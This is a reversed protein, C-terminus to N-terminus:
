PCSITATRVGVGTNTRSAGYPGFTKSTGSPTTFIDGLYYYAYGLSPLDADVWNITSPTPPNCTHQYADIDCSGIGTLGTTSTFATLNKFPDTITCNAGVCTGILGGDKLTCVGLTGCDAAVNCGIKGAYTGATCLSGTILADTRVFSHGYVPRPLALGPPTGPGTLLFNPMTISMNKSTATLSFTLTPEVPAPPPGVYVRCGNIAAGTPPGTPLTTCNFDSSCRAQVKYLELETTNGVKLSGASSWDQLVTTGDIGGYFKFQAAGDVCGGTNVTQSADLLLTEGSVVVGDGDADTITFVIDFGGNTAPTCMVTTPCWGALTIVDPEVLPTVPSVIAGTLQISDIWWGDDHTGVDWVAATGPPELYSDWGLGFLWVNAIWRIKVRQGFLMSLNFKSQVWVGDGVSGLYGPGQAQYFQFVNTGLVSGSHSWIGDPFCMTEAYVTPNSATAGDTPTYECYGFWSFVQTVHDYVNQFPALKTWNGFDDVTPSADKDVSIQVDGRDAAQGVGFNVPNDDVGHFIHYFSLTLDDGQPTITLNIPNTVFAEIQRHPTTDGSRNTANTHRGWHASKYGHYAKPAPITGGGQDFHWDSDYDIDIECGTGPDWYQEFGWCVKGVMTTDSDAAANREIFGITSSFDNQQPLGGTGGRPDTGLPGVVEFDEYILGPKCAGFVSGCDADGNPCLNGAQAFAMDGDCRAPTYVPSAGPPMDLGEVFVVPVVSSTGGVENSNMTLVLDARQPSAANTTRVLDSIVVEFFNGDPTFPSVALSRTDLVSGNPFSPITISADLICAIDPDGTSLSLNVGTLAIGTINQLRLTVVVREGPDGFPDGDGCASTVTTCTSGQVCTGGASACLTAGLAACSTANRTGGQCVAPCDTGGTCALGIRYGNSCTNVTPGGACTGLEGRDRVTSSLVVLNALPVNKCTTALAFYPGNAVDDPIGDRNEDFNGLPDCENGVGNFDNDAQVPPDSGPLITPNSTVSCNDQSDRVADLDMDDNVASCVRSLCTEGGPCGSNFTCQTTTTVSCNGICDGDCADGLPQAFGGYAFDTDAQGPNYTLVCNDNVDKIGDLDADVNTTDCADGRGQVGPEQLPNYLDPCNDVDNIIGDADVDDFDCADGVGDLDGDAQDPNDIFPCNDCGYYVGLSTSGGVGDGDDDGQLPNYILACNDGTDDIADTAPNYGCLGDTGFYASNDDETGCIGDRGEAAQLGDGDMNNFDSQGAIGNQNSDCQSDEYAAFINTETGPTTFVLGPSNFVGSVQVTGKFVGTGTGTETLPINEGPFPESNSWVRVTITDAAGTSGAVCPAAATALYRADNVTVTLTDNCDYLNTRDVSLTACKCGAAIQDSLGTGIRSCSTSTEAVPHVEDWEFVVDDIAFGFDSVPTGAQGSPSEITLFYLGIQFRNGADGPTFFQLGNDEYDVMDIEDTRSPGAVTDQGVHVENTGPFPRLNAPATPIIPVVANVNDSANDFGAFGSEDGSLSADLSSDPDTTPGFTRQNYYRATYYPDAPGTITGIYYQTTDGRPGNGSRIIAKPNDSDINNDIDIYLTPSYLLQVTDNFALRQFEVTFPFGNSDTGQNVKQIVPSIFYDLIFEAREPTNNDWPVGYNGCEPNDAGGNCPGNAGCDADLYCSAGGVKCTGRVGSGTHWVGGTFAAATLVGCTANICPGNEGCNLDTTCVAGGTTCTGTATVMGPTGDSRVCNSRSQTQFGCTGNMVWHWIPYTASSQGVITSADRVTYWGGHNSDFNWPVLDTGAPNTDVLVGRDVIGNTLVTDTTGNFFGMVPYTEDARPCGPDPTGVGTCQVNTISTPFGPRGALPTFWSSFSVTEDLLGLTLGPRDNPEIVLSRNLDRAISGSGTPYDTSYHLGKRDAGLAHSFEYALRGLVKGASTQSLDLRLYVKSVVGPPVTGVQISFTIAQPQGVPLRGINQNNDLVTLYPDTTGCVGSVFPAACTTLEAIVDTFEDMRSQNVVAVSYTVVENSDFFQDRDCGSFVLDPSNRQSPIGFIGALFNPECDMPARAYVNRTSAPDDLVAEIKFGTDGELIGNGATGTADLRVAMASSSYTGGSGSFLVNAESDVLTGSTNYVNFTVASSLGATTAANSWVQVIADDSCSYRIKDLRAIAQPFGGFYAPDNGAVPLSAVIPGSVVAAYVQGGKDLLGDADTDEGTDLVNNGNADENAGNVMSIQGPVAGGVGNTIRLNWVGPVIQNDATGPNKDPNDTLHVCEIANIKDSYNTQVATRGLGWEGVFQNPNYVNGDYVTGSPSVLELDLDNVLTEGPPDPWALCARIQGTTGIVRFYYNVTGGTTKPAVATYASGTGDPDVGDWILLGLAPREPSDGTAVYDPPVIIFPWNAIPLVQSAIVRGFGQHNNLLVTNVPVAGVPVVSGRTITIQADFGDMGVSNMAAGLYQGAINASAALMAKVAAGSVTTVRDAQVRDGSPYFGQHLYDEILTAVSAVSAAAFSTGRAQQDIEAEVGGSGSLTDQSNDRSRVTYMGMPVPGAGTPARDNGTGVVVPAGRLSAATAPGKASFGVVLEEENFPGFMTGTDSINAGVSLINKATAPPSTQLGFPLGAGFTAPDSAASQTGDFLDPILNRGNTLSFGRNGVPVFVQYELNNVLFTDIAVADTSYVGANPTGEQTWNPIGFPFVHLRAGLAYASTMRTTLSGPTVNAGREVVEAVTCQSASGADQMVLRANRATGDLNLRQRDGPNGAETYMSFQFGLASANGLITGAVVNGHTQGGTLISDCTTGLVGTDNVLTYSRIKRHANATIITSISSESLLATSHALSAADISAGNDTVAVIVAPVATSCNRTDTNGITTNGCGGGDVFADWYPTAAGTNENEGVQNVPPQEAFVFAALQFEPVEAISKVREDRAVKKLDTVSVTALITVGDEMLSVTDGRGAKLDQLLGEVDSPDWASIRIDLEKKTARDKDALMQRGTLSEIKFAPAYPISAEVFSAKVLAALAKSDGKVVLARDPRTELVRAGLAKIEAEIGDIGKAKLADEVVQIIGIGSGLGLGKGAPAAYAATPRLDAPLGDFARSDKPNFFGVQTFILGKRDSLDPINPTFEGLPAVDLPRERGAIAIRQFYALAVPDIERLSQQGSLEIGPKEVGSKVAWTYVSPVLLTAVLALAVFLVGKGSQATFRSPM